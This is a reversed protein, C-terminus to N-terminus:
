YLRVISPVQVTPMNADDVPRHCNRISFGTNFIIVDFLGLTDFVPDHTTFRLREPANVKISSNTTIAMMAIKAAISRGANARAFAFACCTLHKLLTLCIVKAATM